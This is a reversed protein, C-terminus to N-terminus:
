VFLEVFLYAMVYQTPFLFYFTCHLNIFSGKTPLTVQPLGAGGFLKLSQPCPILHSHSPKPGLEQQPSHVPCLSRWWPSPDWQDKCTVPQTSRSGSAPSLPHDRPQLHSPSSFTRQLKFFPKRRHLLHPHFKTNGVKYALGRAGGPWVGVLLCCISTQSPFVAPRAGVWHTIKHHTHIKTGVNMQALFLVEKQKSNLGERLGMRKPPPFWGCDNSPSEGGSEGLPGLPPQFTRPWRRFPRSQAPRWPRRELAPLFKEDSKEGPSSRFIGRPGRVDRQMKAEVFSLLPSSKWAEKSVM